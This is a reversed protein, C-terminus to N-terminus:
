KPAAGESERLTSPMEWYSPISRVLFTLAGDHSCTLVEYIAYRVRQNLERMVEDTLGEVSCHLDELANRVNMAILSAYHDPDSPNFENPNM